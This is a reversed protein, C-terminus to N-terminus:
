LRPTPLGIALWAKENNAQAKGGAYFPRFNRQHNNDSECLATSQSFDSNSSPLCIHDSDRSSVEYPHCGSSECQWAYDIRFRAIRPDM